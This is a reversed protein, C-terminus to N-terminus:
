ISVLDLLLVNAPIFLSIPLINHLKVIFKIAWVVFKLPINIKFLAIKKQM